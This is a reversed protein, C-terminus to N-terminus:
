VFPLTSLAAAKAVAIGSWTFSASRNDFKAKPSVLQIDSNKAARSEKASSNAAAKQEVKSEFAHEPYTVQIVDGKTSYVKLLDGVTFDSVAATEVRSTLSHYAKHDSSSDKHASLITSDIIKSALVSANAASAARATAAAAAAAVPDEKVSIKGSQQGKSSQAQSASHQKSSAVLKDEKAKSAKGAKGAIPSRTKAHRPVYDKKSTSNKDEPTAFIEKQNKSEHILKSIIQALTSSLTHEKAQSSPQVLCHKGPKAQSDQKKNAAKLLKGDEKTSQPHKQSDTDMSDKGTFIMEYKYNTYELKLHKYKKAKIGWGAFGVVAAASAAAAVVPLVMDGSSSATSATEGVAFASPVNILSSAVFSTLATNRKISNM